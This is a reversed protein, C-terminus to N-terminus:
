EDSSSKAAAEIQELATERLEGTMHLGNGDVRRVLNAAEDPDRGEEVARVIAGVTGTVTAGLGDATTRVRVDDSVVAVARHEETDALVAGVIAADGSPEDDGLVDLAWDVSRQPITEIRAPGDLLRGVNTRAPETTVESRVRDPVILDGDFPTLVDLEGVKGLAILPTADLYIRTM